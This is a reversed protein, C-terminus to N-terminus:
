AFFGEVRYVLDYKPHREPHPAYDWDWSKAHTKLDQPINEGMLPDFREIVEGDLCLSHEVETILCVRCSLSALAELHAAILRAPINEDISKKKKAAFEMPLLPLQSLVNLSIVLDTGDFSLDPATPDTLLGGSTIHKYIPIVYDTIDREDLEVNGYPGLARRIVPLHLIDVLVVKRFERALEDLPLDNLLGSGLVVVRDRKDCGKVARVIWDRCCALHPKWATECRQHRAMMGILDKLYGMDKLPRPCPTTLYQYLEYLM